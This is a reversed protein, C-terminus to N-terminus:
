NVYLLTNGGEAISLGAIPLQGPSLADPAPFQGVVTGNAPNIQIIQRTTPQIGWVTARRVSTISAGSNGFESAKRIELQYDGTLTEGPSVDPNPSFSPNPNSGTVMEGREAFGIVVDDVYAGERTINSVA